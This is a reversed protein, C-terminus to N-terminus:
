LLLTKVIAPPEVAFLYTQISILVAWVGYLEIGLNETIARTMFLQGFFMTILYFYSVILKIPM